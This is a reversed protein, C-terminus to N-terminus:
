PMPRGTGDAHDPSACRARRTGARCRRWISGCRTPHALPGLRDAWEIVAIADAYADELGLETLEGADGLRYLDAHWIETEGARYTQVLTYSPSPVEEAPAGARALLAGILARALATKGAGVPGTLLVADGAALQPALARAFARMRAEDGLTATAFAPCPTM